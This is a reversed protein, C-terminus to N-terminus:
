MDSFGQCVVPTSIHVILRLFYNVIIIIFCRNIMCHVELCHEPPYERLDSDVVSEIFKRLPLIHGQRQTRYYYFVKIM